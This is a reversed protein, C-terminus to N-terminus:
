TFNQSSIDNLTRGVLAVANDASGDGDVDAFVVVDSGIQVAVVDTVGDLTTNASALATAYDTATSESGYTVNEGTNFTGATTVFWLRDQTGDWDTIRDLSGATTSSQGVGNFYFFDAGAGGAMTDVDANGHLTDNQAGGDLSDNGAGGRLIDGGDGGLLTDNGGESAGASDGGLVDQGAGGSM